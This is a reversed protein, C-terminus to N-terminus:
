GDVRLLAAHACQEPAALAGLDVAWRTGQGRGLDLPRLQERIAADSLDPQVDRLVPYIARPHLAWAVLTWLRSDTGLLIVADQEPVLGRWTRLTEAHPGALGSLADDGLTWEGARARHVQEVISAGGLAIGLAVSGGALVAV